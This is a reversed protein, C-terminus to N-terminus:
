SHFRSISLKIASIYCPVSVGRKPESRGGLMLEFAQRDEKMASVAKLIKKTKKLGIDLNVKKIPDLFDAKRKILCDNVFSLHMEDGIKDVKIM